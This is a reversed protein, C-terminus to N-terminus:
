FLDHTATQQWLPRLKLQTGFLVPDILEVRALDIEGAHLPPVGEDTSLTLFLMRGDPRLPDGAFSALFSQATRGTHLGYLTCDTMETDFPYTLDVGYAWTLSLAFTNYFQPRHVQILYERVAEPVDAGVRWKRQTM